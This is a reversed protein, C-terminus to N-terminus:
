LGLFVYHRRKWDFGPRRNAPSGPNKAVFTAGIASHTHDVPNRSIRHRKIQQEFCSQAIM